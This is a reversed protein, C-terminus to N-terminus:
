NFISIVFIKFKFLYIKLLSSIPYNSKFTPETDSMFVTNILDAAIVYLLILFFISYFFLGLKSNKIDKDVEVDSTKCASCIFFEKYDVFLM